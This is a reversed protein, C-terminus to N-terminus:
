PLISLWFWVTLVSAATAVLVATAAVRRAVGYMHAFLYANVGPAMAATVVASRLSATDLAFVFRGLSWTVAPHLVLSVACIMAITARDGEPRYRHLVGGLGFLAAPIAARILMDMASGLVGPVALGSLNVAFGCLIGIVLPQTLIARGIQGGLARLSLGQGQAKAAEMAAIGAAYLVPAHIAIIAFNGALAATGYARETIATGLLLSNSFLCAFGIAVSDTLPRGFIYRAGAFGAAFGSFAGAYFSVLLGPQFAQALDLGAVNRFLLLPLAVSQAFRMLGDIAADGFMGARTLGYGAAIVVFVPLIVDLLAQM